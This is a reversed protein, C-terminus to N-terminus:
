FEDSKVFLFNDNIVETNKNIKMLEEDTLIETFEILKNLDKRKLRTENLVKRKGLGESIAIDQGQKSQFKSIRLVIQRDYNYNLIFQLYSTKDIEIRKIFAKEKHNIFYELDLRWNNSCRNNIQKIQETSLRAM